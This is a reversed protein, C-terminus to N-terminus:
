RILLGSTISITFILEGGHEFRIITNITILIIYILVTIWQGRIINNLM